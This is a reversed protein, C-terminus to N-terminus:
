SQNYSPPVEEDGMTPPNNPSADRQRYYNQFEARETVDHSLVHNSSHFGHIDYKDALLSKKHHYRVRGVYVDYDSFSDYDRSEMLADRTAVDMNQINEANHRLTASFADSDNRSTQSTVEFSPEDHEWETINTLAKYVSVITSIPTTPVGVADALVLTDDIMALADFSTAPVEEIQFNQTGNMPQSSIWYLQKMQRGDARDIQKEYPLHWNVAYTNEGEVGDSDTAKLTLTTHGMIGSGNASGGLMIGNLDYYPGSFPALNITRRSSALEDQAAGTPDGGSLTWSLAPSIFGPTNAQYSGQGLWQNSPGDWIAVSDATMSGDDSPENLLGAASEGITSGNENSDPLVQDRYKSLPQSADLTRKYSADINPSSISVLRTDQQARYSFGVSGEAAQQSDNVLTLAVKVNWQPLKKTLLGDTDDTSMNATNIQILYPKEKFNYEAPDGPVGDLVLTANEDPILPKDWGGWVKPFALFSVRQPPLDNAGSPHWKIVAKCWGDLSHFDTEGANPFLGVMGSVQGSQIEVADFDKWDCEINQGATPGAYSEVGQAEYKITWQGAMAPASLLPLLGLCLLTRINKM